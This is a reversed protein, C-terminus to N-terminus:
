AFQKNIERSISVFSEARGGGFRCVNSPQLAAPAAGHMELTGVRRESGNTHPGWAREAALLSNYTAGAQRELGGQYSELVNHPSRPGYVTLSPEREKVEIARSSSSCMIILVGQNSTCICLLLPAWPRSKLWGRIGQTPIAKNKTDLRASSSM